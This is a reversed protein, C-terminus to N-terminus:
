HLLIASAMSDPCIQIYKQALATDYIKIGSNIDYIKLPMLLRAVRRIISKGLERYFSSKINRKRNGIVLDANNNIMVDLMKDIDELSHQGDADITICYKHCYEKDRNKFRWWLRQKVKHNIITL